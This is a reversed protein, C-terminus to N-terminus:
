IHTTTSPVTEYLGKKCATMLASWAASRTREEDRHYAAYSTARPYKMVAVVRAWDDARDSDTLVEELDRIDWVIRRAEEYSPVSVSAFLVPWVDKFGSKKIADALAKSKDKNIRKMDFPKLVSLPVGDHTFEMGDYYKYTKNQARFTAQRESFVNAGSLHGWGLFAQLAENMRLKTTPYEYHRDTNIVVRNNEHVTLLDTNYMRVCMVPNGHADTRKYVRFHNSSRRAADAPAQNKFAGRKYMHATLHAQLKTYPTMNDEKPQTAHTNIPRIRLLLKIQQAPRHHTQSEEGLGGRM